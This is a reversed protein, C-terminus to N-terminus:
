SVDEARAGVGEGEARAAEVRASLADDPIEAVGDWPGNVIGRGDRRMEVEIEDLCRLLCVRGVGVLLDEIM